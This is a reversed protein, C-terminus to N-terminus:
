QNCRATSDHLMVFIMPTTKTCPQHGLQTVWSCLHHEAVLLNRIWTQKNANLCPSIRMVLLRCVHSMYMRSESSSDCPVPWLWSTVISASSVMHYLSNHATHLYPLASLQLMSVSWQGPLAIFSFLLAFVSLSFAIFSFTSLPLSIAICAIATCLLMSVAQQYVVLSSALPTLPNPQQPHGRGWSILRWCGRLAIKAASCRTGPRIRKWWCRFACRKYWFTPASEARKMREKKRWENMWDHMRKNRGEM